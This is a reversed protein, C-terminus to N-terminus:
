RPSLSIDALINEFVNAVVGQWTVNVSLWSGAAIQTWLKAIEAERELAEAIQKEDEELMLQNREREEEVKGEILALYRLVEGLWDRLPGVAEAIMAKVAKIAKKLGDKKIIERIKDTLEQKQKMGEM